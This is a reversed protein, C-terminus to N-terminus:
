RGERIKKVENNAVALGVLGLVLVFVSFIFGWRNAPTKLGGAVLVVVAFVVGVMVLAFFGWAQRRYKNLKSDGM